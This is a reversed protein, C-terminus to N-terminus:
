LVSIEQKEAKFYYGNFQVRESITVYCCFSKKKLFFLLDLSCQTNTELAKKPLNRIEKRILHKQWLEKEELLYSERLQPDVNECASFPYQCDDNSTFYACNYCDEDVFGINLFPRKHHTCDCNAKPKKRCKRPKLM